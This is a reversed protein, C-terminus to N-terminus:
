QLMCQVDIGHIQRSVAESRQQFRTSPVAKLNQFCARLYSV